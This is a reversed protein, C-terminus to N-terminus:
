GAVVKNRGAKKAKYLLGDAVKIVEEPTTAEDTREAVGISITVTV